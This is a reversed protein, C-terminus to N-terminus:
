SLKHRRVWITVGLYYGVVLPWGLAGVKVQALPVRAFAMVGAMLVYLLPVALNAIVLGGLNWVLGVVVALAIIEMIIPVTWLLVVNAVVSILSVTGFYAWIIPTTMIIAAVTTRLIEPLRLRPALWVLGAMAAVSLQFSITTIVQPTVLWMAMVALLLVWGGDTKRGWLSAANGALAMLGARVVAAGMGALIMYGVISVMGVVLARKRGWSKLGSIIWSAVITLNYGSVAVVHTMGVVNFANYLKKSIGRAGGIIIGSALGGLDGPLWLTIHRDISDRIQYGWSLGKNKKEPLRSHPTVFFRAVCLLTIVAVGWWRYKM